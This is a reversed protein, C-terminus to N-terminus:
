AKQRTNWLDVALIVQRLQELRAAVVHLLAAPADRELPREDGTLVVVCPRRRGEGGPQLPSSGGM